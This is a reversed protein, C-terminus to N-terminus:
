PALIEPFPPTLTKPVRLGHRILVTQRRIASSIVPNLKVANPWPREASSNWDNENVLVVATLRPRQTVVPVGEYLTEVRVWVQLLSKLQISHSPIAIVYTDKIKTSIKSIQQVGEIVVVVRPKTTLWDDQDTM